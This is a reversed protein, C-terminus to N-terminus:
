PSFFYKAINAGNTRGHSFFSKKFTRAARSGPKRLQASSHPTKALTQVRCNPFEQLSQKETQAQPRSWPFESLQLPSCAATNPKTNTRSKKNLQSLFAFVSLLKTPTHPTHAQSDSCGWLPGGTQLHLIKGLVPSKQLM